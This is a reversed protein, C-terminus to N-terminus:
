MTIVKRCSTQALACCLQLWNSSLGSAAHALLNRTGFLLPKSPLSPRAVQLWAALASSSILMALCTLALMPLTCVICM